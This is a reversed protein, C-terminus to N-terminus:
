SESHGEICCHQKRKKTKKKFEVDQTVGTVGEKM